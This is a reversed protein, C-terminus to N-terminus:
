PTGEMKTLQRISPWDDSTCDPEIWVAVEPDSAHLRDALCAAEAPTLGALFNRAGTSPRHWFIACRASERTRAPGPPHGIPRAPVCSPTATPMPGHLALDRRVALGAGIRRLSTWGAWCVALLSLAALSENM